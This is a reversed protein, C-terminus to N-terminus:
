TPTPGGCEFLDDLDRAYRLSRSKPEGRRIRRCKNYTRFTRATIELLLCSCTRSNRHFDPHQHLLFFSCWPLYFCSCRPQDQVVRGACKYQTNIDPKQSFLTKSQPMEQICHTHRRCCVTIHAFLIDTTQRM